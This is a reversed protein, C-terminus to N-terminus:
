RHRAGSRNIFKHFRSLHGDATKDQHLFALKEKDFKAFFEEWSIPELEPDRPEFDIRLIGPENRRGTAKVSAPTGGREEVWKRIEDHDTTVQVDSKTAAQPM